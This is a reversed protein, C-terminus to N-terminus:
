VTQREPHHVVEEVDAVRLEGSLLKPLLADRTRSEEINHHVREFLPSVQKDFADQVDTPPLVQKSMYAM